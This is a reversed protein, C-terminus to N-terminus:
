PSVGEMSPSGLSWPSLLMSSAENPSARLIADVGALMTIVTVEGSANGQTSVLMVVDGKQLDALSAAPIRALIQQLDAARAGAPSGGASVQSGSGAGGNGATSGEGSSEGGQIRKAIRQAFEEPLKRLQSESSFRVVVLKKSIADQVTLRNDAADVQTVSGAINRFTGSVVEEAAIESDDASRIGRARLQDGPKIQDLPAPKADDFKPSAPAYRRLITNKSTHVTVTRKAGLAGVSLTITGSAQDVAIVLGGVGRKQWDEREHEHAAAVDTHKMVVIAMADLAHPDDSPRGRVLIRDGAQLDALHAPQANKLDKEAPAVRLMRTADQVTVYFTTGGEDSALTISNGEIAKITGVV